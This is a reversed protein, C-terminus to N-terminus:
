GNPRFAKKFLEEEDREGILIRYTRFFYDVASIYEKDSMDGFYDFFLAIHHFYLAMKYAIIDGMITRNDTRSSEVVPLVTKYFEKWVNLLKVKEITFFTRQNKPISNIIGIRENTAILLPEIVNTDFVKM